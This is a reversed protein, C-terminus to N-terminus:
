QLLSAAADYSASMLDLQTTGKEKLQVLKEPTVVFYRFSPPNDMSKESAAGSATIIISGESVQYYWTRGSAKDNFPLATIGQGNKGFVLVMGKNAVAATISPDSITGSHTTGSEQADSAWSLSKWVEPAAQTPATATTAPAQMEESKLDMKRCSSASLILILASTLGFSLKHKKM